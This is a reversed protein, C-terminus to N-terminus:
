DDGADGIVSWAFPRPEPDDNLGIHEGDLAIQGMARMGVGGTNAQVELRAAELREDGGVRTHHTEGIREVLSGGAELSVDGTAEISV